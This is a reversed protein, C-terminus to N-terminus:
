QHVYFHLIYGFLLFKRSFECDARCGRAEGNVVASPYYLMRVGDERHFFLSCRQPLSFLYVVNVLFQSLTYTIFLLYM